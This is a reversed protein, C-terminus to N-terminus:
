LFQLELQVARGAGEGVRVVEDLAHGDLQLVLGDEVVEVAVVQQALHGPFSGGDAPQDCTAAEARAVAEEDSLPGVCLVARYM